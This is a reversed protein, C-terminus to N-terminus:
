SKKKKFSKKVKGVIKHFEDKSVCVEDYMRKVMTSNINDFDEQRSTIITGLMEVTAPSVLAQGEGTGYFSPRHKARPFIITFLESDNLFMAINMMPEPDAAPLSDYIIKFAKDLKYPRHSCITFFPFLADDPSRFIISNDVEGIKEMEDTIFEYDWIHYHPIAQFHLHDPASAGCRPGNYIVCLDELEETLMVMDSIRNKIRQPLHRHHSLTFHTYDLPYPNVLAWYDEMPFSLQTPQRNKACLFCPRNAIDKKGVKASLSKRRNNLLRISIHNNQKDIKIIKENNLAEDMSILNNLLMDNRHHEFYMLDEYNDIKGEIITEEDKIYTKRAEIEITRLRDKYLNHENIKTLPLAHDTNDEWRRCLYLPDFIRGIIYKRSIALGMAYDEGYSVNPFSIERAIPAYFARPAGFGNIRLANNRGNHDTWEEHSILGPPIVNKNFDTLLYSGIVMACKKKYFTKVIRSIVDNGNYLDDSDLQIAFQGCHHSNLALNWCGGIGLGEHGTIRTDIVILRSDNAAIGALIESTGDTSGNDVVIVNFEFDTKQSLASEVADAITRCRNKVPIIVSAEVPFSETNFVTKYHYSQPIYAKIAKLYGSAVEEMEKQSERNRPDVYNFQSEGEKAKVATSTYLFEPIHVIAGKLSLQLRLHYWGAWRYDHNISDSINQLYSTKVLVFKGFDFDDRISGPQYDILPHNTVTGNEDTERFDAYVLAANSDRIVQEMRRRGQYTFIIEDTCLPVITYEGLANLAIRKM